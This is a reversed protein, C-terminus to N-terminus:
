QLLKLLNIRGAGYDASFSGGNMAPVKDAAAMLESRVDAPTPTRGEAIRKAILLATSGTVHPTAMSTGDWADYNRERRVKAGPQPRGDPGYAVGFATQGDYTPLTSWIAKGPASVAIHNGSNSFLTVRDDLGTAGVAVIGPIAAPYSTPSNYQRDNGMAACITVGATLLQDFLSREVSDPVAPGGISLNMVHPPDDVCAALARRYLIPNVYYVFAGQGAAYTPQDDFIKWVDLLCSCVGQVSVGSNILAAITGSVHTGHGIYDRDSVPRALDANQWHYNSVRLDPHATDVGSDLVAVRIQEAERFGAMARAERWQIKELNWLVPVAPPVAQIGIGGAVVRKRPSRGAALYRIPVQSVSLVSPDNALADQLRRAEGPDVMEIFRVPAVAEPAGPLRGPGMMAAAAAMPSPATVAEEGPRLPVVRKIRGARAFYSLADIGPADLGAARMATAAAPAGAESRMNVILIDDHHQPLAETTFVSATTRKKTTDGVGRVIGPMAVPPAEVAAREVPAAVQGDRAFVYVFAKAQWGTGTWSRSDPGVGGHSELTRGDVVLAVHGIKRPGADQPRLFAIRVVGDQAKGDAVSSKEYAHSRVWQHQNVSGDPFRLSPVTSLRVLQKVFGSCDVRKFDRGPVADLSRIKNGLGYTVRPHANQCAELFDWARSVDFARDGAAAPGPESPPLDMGNDAFGLNAIYRASDDDAVDLLDDPAPAGPDEDSGVEAAAEDARMAAQGMGAVPWAVSQSSALASEAAEECYPLLRMVDQAYRQAKLGSGNYARVAEQIDGTAQYKKTLESVVRSVCEDFSYWKRERFFSEDTLVHQLDYQFIGYGKYVMNASALGRAARAKNTEAILLRTFTDGFKLRFQATNVPFASRPAGAVDGSADYVCLGLIEAATKHPTLPLWYPGAERWAIACLLPTTFPTARAADALEARFNSILWRTVGRAVDRESDAATTAVGAGVTGSEDDFRDAM